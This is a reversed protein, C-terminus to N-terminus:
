THTHQVYLTHRVAPPYRVVAHSAQARARCDGVVQGYQLQVAAHLDGVLTQFVDGGATAQLPELDEVVALDCAGGDLVVHDTHSNRPPPIQGWGCHNFHDHSASPEGSSALNSCVRYGNWM